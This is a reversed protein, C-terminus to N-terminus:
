SHIRMLLEAYEDLLDNAIHPIQSLTYPANLEIM